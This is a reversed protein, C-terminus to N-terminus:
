LSSIGPLGVTDDLDIPAVGAFWALWALVHLIADCGTGVADALEKLLAGVDIDAAITGV